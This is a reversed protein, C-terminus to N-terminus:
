DKAMLLIDEVIGYIELPPDRNNIAKILQASDSEIRVEKIGSRRCASVAERLAMEKAILASAVFCVGRQGKSSQEGELVWWGLGATKKTKSWSADSRAVSVVQVTPALSGILPKKEEKKQAKSWERAAVIAQTVTEAPNRVWKEFVLKNRAKWLSWM